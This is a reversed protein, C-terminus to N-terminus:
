MVAPFAAGVTEVAASLKVFMALIAWLMAATFVAAFLSIRNMVPDKRRNVIHQEPSSYELILHRIDRNRLPFLRKKPFDKFFFRKCKREHTIYYQM